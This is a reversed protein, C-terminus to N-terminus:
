IVRCFLVKLYRGELAALNYPHDPANEFTEVVQLDRQDKAGAERLCSLFEELNIGGSCSCTILLGGPAVLSLGLSNLRTYGKLAQEKDRQSKAFAPPDLIVGAYRTGRETEAQLFKFVESTVFEHRAPDLQNLEFNQRALELAVASQDVNVSKLQPNALAAYISFGASYSFCNLLVPPEGPSHPLGPAYRGLMQRKDRQDTFFGTKQGKWLNVVFRRGNERVTIEEPVTGYILRPEEKAVGERGRVPVDNRLLIGSPQIVEQLAEILPELLHDLGATHSQVVLVGAYYDVIAGPLFDGEANILRYVDTEALDFALHRLQLAQQVRRRLFAGDIAEGENRTLVRVAIDTRPNYYGRALFNGESDALDVLSGPELERPPNQLAGSFLWPHGRRVSWDRGTKVKLIKNAM